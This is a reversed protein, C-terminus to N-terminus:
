INGAKWGINLTKFYKALNVSVDDYQLARYEKSDYSGKLYLRYTKSFKYKQTDNLSQNGLFPNVFCISLEPYIFESIDDLSKYEILTIDYNQQYKVLWYGVMFATALVCLCKFINFCINLSNM